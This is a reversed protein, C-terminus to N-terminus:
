GSKYKLFRVPVDVRYGTTAGAIRINSDIYYYTVSNFTVTNGGGIQTFLFTSVELDDSARVNFMIKTGKSGAVSSEDSGNQGTPTLDKVITEDTGESFYYSAINDDDIFSPTQTVGIIAGIKGFRNDIQVIYSTERLDPDIDVTNPKVSNDIGQDLRIYNSSKDYNSSDAKLVGLAKQGFPGTGALVKDTTTSDVTVFFMGRGKGELDAHEVTQHAGNNENVKIVPLYLLDTRSFSILRNKMSSANNTFAELVPTQMVDLDFYASGSAHDKDYLGYDIEDDGLAFKVIRFSGDGKALRMRGTDTLVADLIIDGSNDLFAM